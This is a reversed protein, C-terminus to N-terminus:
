RQTLDVALGLALLVSGLIVFGAGSIVVYKVTNPPPRNGLKRQISDTAQWFSTPRRWIAAGLVISILGSVVAFVNDWGLNGALM